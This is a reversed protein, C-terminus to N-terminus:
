LSALPLPAESSCNSCVSFTFCFKGNNNNKAPPHSFQSLFFVPTFLQTHLSYSEMMNEGSTKFIQLKVCM